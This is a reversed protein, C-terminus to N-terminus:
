NLNNIVAKLVDEFPLKGIAEITKELETKKKLSGSLLVQVEQNRDVLVSTVELANTLVGIIIMTQTPTLITRNKDANNNKSKDSNCNKMDNVGLKEMIIKSLSNLQDPSFV